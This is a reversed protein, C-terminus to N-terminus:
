GPDVFGLAAVFEDFSMIPIGYARAKKTKSSMSAPDACVLLDCQKTVSGVPQLGALSATEEIESRSVPESDIMATGTFCIRSAPPIESIVGRVDNMEPIVSDDLDLLRAVRSLIEHEVETIVGDRQAGIVLSNFYSRHARILAEHGLGLSDALVLLEAREVDDIVLDDLVRDLTDLYSLLAADSTPYRAGRVLRALPLALSAPDLHDRRLTRPNIEADIGFVSAPTGGLDDDVFKRLLQLSARADTLARHHHTLEVDHRRCASLLSEGTLRLTCVGEGSELMGGARDFDQSLMRVDFTLNHAVLVAGNLRTALAPAIEDFTPASSVMSPTLGHINTPGIDRMPNILTDFEDVVCDKEADFVIAAVEIIRDSGGLGTTETDIVVYETM